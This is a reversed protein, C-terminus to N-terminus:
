VNTTSVDTTISCQFGLGQIFEKKSDVNTMNVADSECTEFLWKKGEVKLKLHDSRHIYM